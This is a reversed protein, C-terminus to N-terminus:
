PTTVPERKAKGGRSVTYGHADMWEALILDLQATMTRSEAESIARLRRHSHESMRFNRSDQEAM